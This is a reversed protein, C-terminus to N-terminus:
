EPKEMRTRTHIDTINATKRLVGIDHIATAIEDLTDLHLSYSVEVCVGVTAAPTM